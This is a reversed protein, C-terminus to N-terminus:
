VILGLDLKSVYGLFTELVSLDVRWLLWRFNWPSTLVCRVFCVIEVGVYSQWVSPPRLGRYKKGM